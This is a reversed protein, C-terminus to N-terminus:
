TIPYHYYRTTPPHELGWFSGPKWYARDELFKKDDQDPRYRGSTTIEGTEQNPLEVLVHYKFREIDRGCLQYLEWIDSDYFRKKDMQMFTESSFQVSHALEELVEVAGPVGSSLREIMEANKMGKTLRDKTAM